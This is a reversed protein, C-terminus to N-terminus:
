GSPWREANLNRSRTFVASQVGAGGRRCSDIGAAEKEKSEKAKEQAGAAGFGALFVILLTIFVPVNKMSKM